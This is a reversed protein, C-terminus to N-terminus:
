WKLLVILYLEDFGSQYLRTTGTVKGSHGSINKNEISLGAGEKMTRIIKALTNKGFVQTSFCITGDKNERLKHYFRGKDPLLSLYKLVPKCHLM